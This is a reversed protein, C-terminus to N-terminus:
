ETEVALSVVYPDATTTATTTLVLYAWLGTADAPLRITKNHTQTEVYQTAGVDAPQGVSLSGLYYARDGSPIDFVANDALASPPTRSYFHLTFVSAVATGHDIRLSSNKIIFSQGAVHTALAFRQAAGVCDGGAHSAAGPTFTATLIKAAM